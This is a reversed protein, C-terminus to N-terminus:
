FYDSLEAFRELVLLRHGGEALEERELVWTQRHPIFVANIGAALAPNIDSRPSNGIMWTASPELGREQVLRLYTQTEKEKVVLTQEFFGALGSREIKLKQEEPHGKTLLLIQHAQSLRNLTEQVGDLLQMPQAMIREGLSVVHAVDEPRLDRESLREYTLRLNRAFSASGYGHVQTNMREIEDLAARVQDRGLWSHALYDIFDEIAQEFYINNEWLTDDGDLILHQRGKARRSGTAM